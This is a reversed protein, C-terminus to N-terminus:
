DHPRPPGSSARWSASRVGRRDRSAAERPGEDPPLRSAAATARHERDASCARAARRTPEGLDRRDTTRSGYHWASEVLLRRALASGTKTIAGQRSSEGSQNLSPTLGLWAGLRTPREFRQWDAGLELHISLATLTDVGRFARLRAVTPWFEPDTALRSIREALATKRATLGDVRAVLDAFVFASM